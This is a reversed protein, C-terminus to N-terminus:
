SGIEWGMWRLQLFHFRLTKKRKKLRFADLHM